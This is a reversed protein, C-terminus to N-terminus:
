LSHFPPARALLNNQGQHFNVQRRLVKGLFRYSVMLNEPPSSSMRYYVASQLKSPWQFRELLKHICAPFRGSLTDSFHDTIEYPQQFTLLKPVFYELLVIADHLSLSSIYT